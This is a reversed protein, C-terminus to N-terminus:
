LDRNRRQLGVLIAPILVGAYLQRMPELFLDAPVPVQDTYTAPDIAALLVQFCLYLAFLATVRELRPLDRWWLEFASATGSATSPAESTIQDDHWPSRAVVLRPVDLRQEFFSLRGTDFTNPAVLHPTTMSAMLKSASNAVMQEGVRAGLGGTLRTMLDNRGAAIAFATDLVSSVSKTLVAEGVSRAGLGGVGYLSATRDLPALSAMLKTACSAVMQEGVRAGLAGGTLRSMLDNRQGGIALAADLSSSM